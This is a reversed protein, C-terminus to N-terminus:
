VASFDGNVLTLNPNYYPDGKEIETGWKAMFRDIEGNARKRKEPSDEKGRSKSEYHYLEAYPTWVILYGAKRIRMCLDLDNYMVAFAEDLGQMEDWIKRPVMMCAATVASLNQAITMRGAYGFEGRRYGKHAHEAVGAIGLIIGAHQVTNDPYYLMAGVAGVDGRQAYMLMQEMWDATIVETDNNLLLLYDGKALRAGFNNIAAFNFGGDSKWEVVRIREDKQIEDYCDFTAPDESGNEVVIIEWHDWSSKEWISDVCRRLDGVHDRNPIIISILPDGDIEYQVKYTSAMAAESVTGKLGVRGLHEAIAAKGAEITYPKASVNLATSGEHSRWYYLIRPIHIIREAQECLRLILDYDQSGDFEKRFGGGAKKLLERSFVTFHCIYNNSRLTDPAYDPKFHLFFADSPTKTFSAEDSYIFDAKEACIAKMYEFLAYPHLLDDHDFLGIYDGTAMSICANTNESIGGNRELKKYFIRPDRDAYQACVTEVRSHDGDSGDALCLEWNSYTQQLVSEIMETLFSEPTNYLPVLISFKIRRDFVTERQRRTEEPTIRGAEKQLKDKRAREAKRFAEAREPGFTVIRKMYRFFLYVQENKRVFKKFQEM